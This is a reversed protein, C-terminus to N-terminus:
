RRPGDLGIAQEIRALRHEVSERWENVQRREQEAMQELRAIRDLIPPEEKAVIAPGPYQEARDM